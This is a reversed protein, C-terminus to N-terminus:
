RRLADHSHSEPTDKALKIRRLEEIAVCSSPIKPPKFGPIDVFEAM